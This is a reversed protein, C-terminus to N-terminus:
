AAIWTHVSPDYTVSPPGVSPQNFETLDYPTESGVWYVEVRAGIPVRRGRGVPKVLIRDIYRANEVREVEPLVQEYTHTATTM